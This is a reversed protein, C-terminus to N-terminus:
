QIEEMHVPNKAARSLIDTIFDRAKIEKLDAYATHNQDTEEAIQMKLNMYANRAKGNQRLYDRFLLHRRLEKSTSPCVYLHHSVVDLLEHSPGNPSRKFAEREPIGQDGNHFYGLKGLADRIGPFEADDYIVIDIDIIDKAALGPVSTSGVHEIGIRFGSLGAKLVARIRQFDDPWTNKYEHILM